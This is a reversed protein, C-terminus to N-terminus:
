ERAVEGFLIEERLDSDTKTVRISQAHFGENWDLHLLELVHLYADEPESLKGLNYVIEFITLM